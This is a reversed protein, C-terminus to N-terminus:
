NVLRNKEGEILHGVIDFPSWTNEGENEHTWEHPLDELMVKLISPTRKLILISKQLNFQM